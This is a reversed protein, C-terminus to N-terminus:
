NGCRVLKIAFKQPSKEFIVREKPLVRNEAMYMEECSDGWMLRRVSCSVFLWVESLM